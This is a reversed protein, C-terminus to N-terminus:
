SFTFPRYRALAELRGKLNRGDTDIYGHTRGDMRYRIGVTRHPVIFPYTKVLHIVVFISEIAFSFNFETFLTNASKTEILTLQTHAEHLRFLFMM